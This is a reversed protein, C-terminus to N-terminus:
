GLRKSLSIYLTGEFFFWTADLWSSESLVAYLSTGNLPGLGQPFFFISGILPGAREVPFRSSILHGSPPTHSLIVYLFAHSAYSGLVPSVM